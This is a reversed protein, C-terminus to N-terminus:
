KSLFEEFENCMGIIEIFEDREAIAIAQQNIKDVLTRMTDTKEGEFAASATLVIGALRGSSSGYGDAIHLVERLAERLREIEDRLEANEERLDSNECIADSRENIFITSDHKLQQIEARLRENERWLDHNETMAARWDAKILRLQEIEDAAEDCDWNFKGERLRAVIDDTM